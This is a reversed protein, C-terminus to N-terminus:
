TLRQLYKRRIDDGSRKIFNIAFGEEEYSDEIDDPNTTDKTEETDAVSEVKLPSEAEEDATPTTEPTAGKEKELSSFKKLM